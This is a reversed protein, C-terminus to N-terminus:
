PNRSIQDWKSFVLDSTILVSRREYHKALFTFLIEMKATKSCM